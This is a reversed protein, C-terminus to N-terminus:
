ESMLCENQSLHVGEGARTFGGPSSTQGRAAEQEYGFLLCFWSDEDEDESKFLYPLTPNVSKEQTPVRNPIDFFLSL